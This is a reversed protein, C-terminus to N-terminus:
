HQVIASQASVESQVLSSQKSPNQTCVGVGHGSGAVCYQLSVPHLSRSCHVSSAPQSSPCGHVVSVQSAPSQLWADHPVPSVQQASPQAAQQESECHAPWLSSGHLGLVHSPPSHTTSARQWAAPVWHQARGFPVASQPLVSHQVVSFQGSMAQMRLSQVGM